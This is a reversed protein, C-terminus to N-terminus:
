RHGGVEYSPMRKTLTVTSVATTCTLSHSTTPMMALCGGRVTVSQVRPQDLEPITPPELNRTSKMLRGLDVDDMSIEFVGFESSEALEGEDAFAPPPPPRAANGRMHPPVYKGRTPMPVITQGDQGGISAAGINIAPPSLSANSSGLSEGFQLGHYPPSQPSEQSDLMPSEVSAGRPCGIDRREESSRRRHRMHHTFIAQTNNNHPSAALGTSFPSVNGGGGRTHSPSSTTSAAGDSSSSQSLSRSLASRLSPPSPMGAVALGALSSAPNFSSPIHNSGAGDHSSGADQAAPPKEEQSPRLLINVLNRLSRSLEFLWRNVGAM